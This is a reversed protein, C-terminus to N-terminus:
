AARSQRRAAGCAVHVHGNPSPETTDAGPRIAGGCIACSDYPVFYSWESLLYVISRRTMAFYPLLVRLADRGYLPGVGCIPQGDETEVAWVEGTQVHQWFAREPMSESPHLTEAESITPARSQGCPSSNGRKLQLRWPTAPGERSVSKGCM